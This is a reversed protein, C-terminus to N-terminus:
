YLVDNFSTQWSFNIDSILNKLLKEAKQCEESSEKSKKFV